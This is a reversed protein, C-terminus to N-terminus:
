QQRSQVVSCAVCPPSMSRAELNEDIRLHLITLNELDDFVADPLTDPGAGLILNLNTLNTLGDFMGDPLTRPSDAYLMVLWELNALSDFDGAQLAFSEKSQAITMMTIGSRSLADM